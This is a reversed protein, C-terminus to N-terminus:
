GCTSYDSGAAVREANAVALGGYEVYRVVRRDFSNAHEQLSHQDDKELPDIDTSSVDDDDDGDSDSSEGEDDADESVEDDESSVDGDDDDDDRVAPSFDVDSLSATDILNEAASILLTVSSGDEEDLSGWTTHSSSVVTRRIASWISERLDVGVDISRVALVIHPSSTSGPRLRRELNAVYPGTYWGNYEDEKRSM